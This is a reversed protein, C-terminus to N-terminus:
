LGGGDAQQRGPRDRRNANTVPVLERLRSLKANRNRDGRSVGNGNGM